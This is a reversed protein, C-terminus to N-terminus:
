SWSRETKHKHLQVEVLVLVAQVVAGDGELQKARVGVDALTARGHPTAAAPINVHGGSMEGAIQTSTQTHPIDQKGFGSRCSGQPRSAVHVRIFRQVLQAELGLVVLYRACPLPTLAPAYHPATHAPRDEPLINVRPAKWTCQRACGGRRERVCRHQDRRFWNKYQIPSRCQPRTTACTRILLWQGGRTSCVGGAGGCVCM